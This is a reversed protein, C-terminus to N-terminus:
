GRATRISLTLAPHPMTRCLPAATSLTALSDFAGNGHFVAKGTVGLPVLSGNVSQYGSQAFMYLGKLTGLSCSTPGGQQGSNAQEAAFLGLSMVAGVVIPWPGIRKM